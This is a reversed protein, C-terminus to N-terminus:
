VTGNANEKRLFVLYSSSREEAAIIPKKAM